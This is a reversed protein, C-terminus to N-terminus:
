KLLQSAIYLLFSVRGFELLTHFLLWSALYLYRLIISLGLVNAPSWQLFEIYTHMTTWITKWFGRPGSTSVNSQAMGYVM